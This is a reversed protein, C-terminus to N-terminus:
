FWRVVVIAGAVPAAISACAVVAGGVVRAWSIRNRYSARHSEGTPQNWALRAKDAATLETPLTDKPKRILKAPKNIRAVTQTSM